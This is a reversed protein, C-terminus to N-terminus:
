RRGLNRFGFFILNLDKLLSYDRVYLLNLKKITEEDASDSKIGDVPSLIGPKIINQFAPQKNLPKCGVWSKSGFFVSFANQFFGKKQKIFFLLIPSFALFIISFVFDLVRKNRKNASSYVASVGVTYLEGRTNISNSGIISLSDEPAIKYGVKESKWEAMKDIIAQHSVNKSCFIIEDIKYINIIDKVQLINGIYGAPKSGNEVPLVKGIFAPEVISERLIKAVRQSEEPDGIILLRKNNKIGTKFDKFGLLNLMYRLLSLMLLGWVMDALIQGRSFRLSEPLLAYLVLIIVTGSFIGLLVKRIRYPKEYGGIFFIAALWLVIYAPMVIHVFTEPYSGGEPYTFQHEWMTKVWTMGGWIILFDLIPLAIKGFFRSLLALFARFYISIQILLTLLRANKGTFHKRAFILMAKYFVLVYNVSSKKTSEGKYHLIRTEPFYFNKYGAKTIRYSLDIDEGYMFFSEDLLGIQDLLKKRILMFAGALVDVEHIENENLYGKYYESFRKSHPFLATFGFIKYFAAAPTPLGRKSEPLFKGSGDVMKVGLGGAEPHNTMFRVTKDFTDAEVVTDPNLLLIFEGKAVKIAQNNAKAFGLNKKNAIVQVESFKNRLMELSGDVSNNDVVIIEGEMQRLGNRVAMLCQELFHEVNYNVIIVSLKM